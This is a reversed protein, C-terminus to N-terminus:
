CGIIRATAQNIYHQSNIELQEALGFEIPTTQYKPLAQKKLCSKSFHFTIWITSYKGTYNKSKFLNCIKRLFFIKVRFTVLNQISDLINSM